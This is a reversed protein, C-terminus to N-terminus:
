YMVVCVCLCVGVCMSECVEGVRASELLQMAYAERETCTRMKDLLDDRERSLELVQLRLPALQAHDQQLYISLYILSCRWILM